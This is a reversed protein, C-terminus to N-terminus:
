RGGDWGGEIEAQAGRERGQSTYFSPLDVVRKNRNVSDGSGYVPAVPVANSVVLLVPM